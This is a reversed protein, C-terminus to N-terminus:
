RIATSRSCRAEGRRWCKPTSRRDGPARRRHRRHQAGSIRRRPWRWRSRKGSGKSLHRRSRAAARHDGSDSAAAVGAHAPKRGPAGGRRGRLAHHHDRLQHGRLRAPVARGGQGEMAPVAERAHPHQGPRLPSMEAVRNYMPLAGFLTLLVLVLTAIPSLTGAALFAIGPQYALTSFYDVGTLCMVKWWAARHTPPAPQGTAPGSGQYMWDHVRKKSSSPVPLRWQDETFM